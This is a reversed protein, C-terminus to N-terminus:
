ERMSKRKREKLRLLFSSLPLEAVRKESRISGLIAAGGGGGKREVITVLVYV